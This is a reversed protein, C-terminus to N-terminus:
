QRARARLVQTLGDRGTHIVEFRSSRLVDEMDGRLLRRGDSPNEGSGVVYVDGAAEELVQLLMDASSIVPTGTYFDLIRGDVREVYRRAHDRSMLWYDVKGLYYTQQLVDEALVVDAPQLSLSRMFLAAGQHDPRLDYGANVARAVMWPNVILVTLAAAALLQAPRRELAPRRVAWQRWVGQVFAVASLLMPLLSAVTYRPPLSWT